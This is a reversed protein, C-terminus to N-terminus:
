KSFMKKLKIKDYKRFRNYREPHWMCAYIKKQKSEISEINGDLSQYEIKFGKPCKILSYNHYSNVKIKKKESFIYHELKVHNNVKILKVNFYKGILQMGRCIGFIPIKKKIAYSLLVEETDDRLKYKGIDDGGSFVIGSLNINKIWNIIKKKLISKEKYELYPIIIPHYECEAIFKILRIDLQTRLEGHKSVCLRQTVGISKM